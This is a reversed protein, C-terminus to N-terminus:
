PQHYDYKIKSFNLTVEGGRADKKPVLDQVKHQPDKANKAPEKPKNKSAKM